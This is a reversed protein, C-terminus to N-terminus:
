AFTDLLKDLAASMNEPTEYTGDAIAQRLAAVKETRIGNISQGSGTAQSESIQQAELSLELQDNASNAASPAEVPGAAKAGATRSISQIAQTQQLGHIQM